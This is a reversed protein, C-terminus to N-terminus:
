APVPEKKRIPEAPEGPKRIKRMDPCAPDPPLGQMERMPQCSM